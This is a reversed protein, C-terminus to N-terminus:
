FIKYINIDVSVMIIYIPRDILLIKRGIEFQCYPQRFKTLDGFIIIKMNFFFTIIMSVITILFLSIAIITFLKKNKLQKHGSNKTKNTYISYIRYNICIMPILILTIAINDYSYKFKCISEADIHLQFLPSFISMVFGFMIIVCLKPSYIGLYPHNIYKYVYNIIVIFLLMFIIIPIYVYYESIGQSGHYNKMMIFNEMNDFINIIDDTSSQGNVTSNIYNKLYQPLTLRIELFSASDTSDSCFADKLHISDVAYSCIKRHNYCFDDENLKTANFATNYNNDLVKENFLSYSEMLIIDSIKKVIDNELKSNKNFVLYKGTIIKSHRPTTTVSVNNSDKFIKKYHSAKGKFFLCEGNQFSAYAEEISSVVKVTSDNIFLKFNDLVLDDVILENGIFDNLYAYEIFMKLLEVDNDLAICLSKQEKYISRIGSLEEWTLYLIHEPNTLEQSVSDNHYYLVDIDLDYPIAYMRNKYYGGKLFDPQFYNFTSNDVIDTIDQYFEHLHKNGFIEKFYSDESNPIDNFLLDVDIEIIDYAHGNLHDYINKVYKKYDDPNTKDPSNLEDFTINVIIEDNFAEKVKKNVSNILSEEYLGDNDKLIDPKELLLSIVKNEHANTKNILSGLFYFFGISIFKNLIM